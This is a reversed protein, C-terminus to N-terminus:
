EAAEYNEACEAATILRVGMDDVIWDGISAILHRIPNDANLELRWTANTSDFYVAGRWGDNSLYALADLMDAESILNWGILDIPKRQLTLSM